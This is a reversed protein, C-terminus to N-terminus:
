KLKAAESVKQLLQALKALDAKGMHSEIRHQAKEWLPLAEALKAQGAASLEIIKKRPDDPHASTVVLGAKELKEINRTVTTQDMNLIRGMDSIFPQYLGSISRLMGYQTVRIGAPRLYYDYMKSIQRGARRVHMATCPIKSTIDPM